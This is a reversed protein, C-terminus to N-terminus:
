LRHSQKLLAATKLPVVNKMKPGTLSEVSEPEAANGNMGLWQPKSSPTMPFRSPSASASIKKSKKLRPSHGARRGAMMTKTKPLWILPPDGVYALIDTEGRKAAANARHNGDIIINHRPDIVIPPADSGMAVYDNVLQDHITFLDLKLEALPFRQLHYTQFQMVNQLIDGDDFDEPTHHWSEVEDALDSGSITQPWNHSEAILNMWHRTGRSELVTLPKGAENSFLVKGHQKLDQILTEDQLYFFKVGGKYYLLKKPRQVPMRQAAKNWAETSVEYATLYDGPYKYEAWEQQFAMDLKQFTAGNIIAFGEHGNGSRVLVYITKNLDVHDSYVIEDMKESLPISMGSRSECDRLKALFSGYHTHFLDGACFLWAHIMEHVLLGDIQEESRVYKTDIVIHLTGPTMTTHLRQVLKPQKAFEKPLSTECGCYGGVHKLTGWRIPIHPLQGDFCLKNFHDFKAALDYDKHSVAEEFLNMWERM